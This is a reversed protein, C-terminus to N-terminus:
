ATLYGLNVIADSLPAGNTTAGTTVAIVLGTTFTLPVAFAGDYVGRNSAGTGGPLLFSYKPTTTGVTVDALLADFCQLFCDTTNPNIVHIFFLLAPHAFVTVAPDEDVAVNFFSNVGSNPVAM